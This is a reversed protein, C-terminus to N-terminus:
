KKSIKELNEHPRSGRRSRIGFEFSQFKFTYFVSFACPCDNLIEIQLNCFFELEVFTKSSSTEFGFM